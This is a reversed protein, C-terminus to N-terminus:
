AVSVDAQRCSERIRQLLADRTVETAGDGFSTLEGHADYFNLIGSKAMSAKGKKMGNVNEGVVSFSFVKSQSSVSAKLVGFFINDEDLARIMDDVSSDSSVYSVKNNSFTTLVYVVSDDAKFKEYAVALNEDSLDVGSSLKAQKESLNKKEMFEKVWTTM